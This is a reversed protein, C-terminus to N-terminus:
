ILEQPNEENLRQNGRYSKVMKEFPVTIQVPIGDHVQVEVIMKGYQLTKCDAELLEWLDARKLM